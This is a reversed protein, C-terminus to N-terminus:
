RSFDNLYNVINKYLIEWSFINNTNFCKIYKTKFKQYAKHDVKFIIKDDERFL